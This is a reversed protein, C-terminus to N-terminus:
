KSLRLIKTVIETIEKLQEPNCKKLEYVLEQLRNELPQEGTDLAADISFGYKEHLKCLIGLSPLSRKREINQMQNITIGLAESLQDQTMGLSKRFSRIAKSFLEKTDM